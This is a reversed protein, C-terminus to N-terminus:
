EDQSDIGQILNFIRGAEREKELFSSYSKEANAILEQYMVVRTSKRAMYDDTEKRDSPNDNWDKLKRGVVCIVEIPENSKGAAELIKKLAQRYKDCQKLLDYSYVAKDARKLEIILHKGSTTRYKIDVRGNLEDKTLKADIKGFETQVRQEMYESSEVREWGPDLLWLADYLHEQLIKEQANEQVKSQLSRIVEVRSMVIQRYMTAEIDDIDHFIRVFEELMAGDLADLADLNEKVRMSEFALIGHKLLSRREEESDITLKNIKGFLSEARKKNDKGLSNYWENIASIELARHTGKENRLETWHNQINKLEARIFNKLQIYRPDDELIRQRSSTAIDDNDDLDLFDAHIEGFIYTAYVGGESFDDLIDEQAVKGRVMVVIKNLSDGTEADRLAGAENSTAIWGTVSYDTKPILANRKNFSGCASCLAAVEKGRDGYQWLFQVKHFYDRDTLKIQNNNVKIIFRHKEGIIAFRRALRRRLHIEPQRFERKFDRIIIRTGCELDDPLTTIIEPYYTHDENQIKNRIDELVMRFGHKQGGKISFVEIINAISFLSLKGIGKRGMVPRKHTETVPPGEERRRYGVMLYKYNADTITMGHGDDQIIIAKKEEDTEISVNEADADWANAVVESLVAPVNSYLNIGLHNLVNLSLTM